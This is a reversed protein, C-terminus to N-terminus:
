LFEDLLPLNVPGRLLCFRGSRKLWDDAARGPCLGDPGLDLPLRPGLSTLLSLLIVVGILIRFLALPEARIPRTWFDYLSRRLNRRPAAGPSANM